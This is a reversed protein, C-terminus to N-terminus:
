EKMFDRLRELSEETMRQIERHFLSQAMGTFLGSLAGGGVKYDIKLTVHTKEGNDGEPKLEWTNRSTVTGESISVMRRPPAFTIIRDRARMPMGRFRGQMEVCAGVGRDEETVLKVSTFQPQLRPINRYDAVFEFIREAKEDIVIDAKTTPM